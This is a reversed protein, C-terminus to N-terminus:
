GILIFMQSQYIDEAKNESAKTILKWGDKPDNLFKTIQEKSYSVSYDPEWTIMVQTRPDTVHEKITYITSDRPVTISDGINWEQKEANMDSFHDKLHTETTTELYLEADLRWDIPNQIRFHERYRSAKIIPKESYHTFTYSPEVVETIILIQRDDSHTEQFAEIQSRLGKGIKTCYSDTIGPLIVLYDADEVDKHSTYKGTGHEKVQLGQKKLYERVFTVTKQRCENSKALYVKTKM